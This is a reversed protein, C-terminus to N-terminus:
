SAIVFVANRSPVFTRVDPRTVRKCALSPAVSTALLLLRAARAIAVYGQRVVGLRWDGSHSTFAPRSLGAQPGAVSPASGM